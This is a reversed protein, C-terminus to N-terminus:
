VDCYKKYRKVFNEFQGWDLFECSNIQIQYFVLLYIDSEQRLQPM